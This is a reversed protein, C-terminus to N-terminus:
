LELQGLNNENGKRGGGGGEHRGGVHADAGLHEEFVTFVVLLKEVVVGLLIKVVLPVGVETHSGHSGQEPPDFVDLAAETM